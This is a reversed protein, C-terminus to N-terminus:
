PNTAILDGLAVLRLWGLECVLAATLGSWAVGTIVRPGLGRGVMAVLCFVAAQEAKKRGPDVSVRHCVLQTFLCCKSLM